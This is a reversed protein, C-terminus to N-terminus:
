LLAVTVTLSALSVKAGLCTLVGLRYAANSNFCFTRKEILASLSLV